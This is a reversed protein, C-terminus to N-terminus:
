ASVASATDLVDVVVFANQFRRRAEQVTGIPSEQPKDHPDTPSPKRPDMPTPDEKLRPLRNPNDKFKTSSNMHM